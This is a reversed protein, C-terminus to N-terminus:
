PTAAPALKETGRYRQMIQLSREGDLNQTRAFATRPWPTITQIAANAALSNGASPSITDRRDFTDACGSILLLLPFAGLVRAVDTRVRM